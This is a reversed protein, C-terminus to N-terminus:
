GRFAIIPGEQSRNGSGTAFSRDWERSKGEAGGRKMADPLGPPLSFRGVVQAAASTLGAPVKAIESLSPESM